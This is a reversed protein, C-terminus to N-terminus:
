GHDTDFDIALSVDGYEEPADPVDQPVLPWLYDFYFYYGASAPNRDFLAAIEVTHNGAPVNSRVRVNATTGGYEDLYLDHTTAVGDVSVSIKGCDTNLFTGLYLDPQQTQSYSFGVKRLDGGTAPAARKAHGGAWWQSPWETGHKYDEWYGTYQCRADSEEIRVSGGGVKLSADGTVAINSITARWEVDSAFGSRPSLKSMRTGSPWAQRTTGEYGRQVGVQGPLAQVLLIREEDASDGIFYRGGSLKSSDDVQWTTEGANVGATLFCGDELQQETPEFRPAFVMYIKRCDNAPVTRALKDTLSAFNLTIRYRADNDGGTFSYTGPLIWDLAQVGADAHGSTVLV